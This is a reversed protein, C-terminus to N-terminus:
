FNPHCPCDCDDCFDCYPEECDDYDECNYCDCDEYDHKDCDPKNMEYLESQLRYGELEWIKDKIKKMCIEEGMKYDYNEPSVCASSEVIVFGNPLQCAVMTCKNFLTDVEFTSNSMIEDIHEQTVTPATKKEQMVEFHESAEDHSMVGMHVFNNGFAFTIIGDDNVNIVKAIDGKDLFSAVKKTVILKDGNNLM